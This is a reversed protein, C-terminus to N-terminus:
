QKAAIPLLKRIEKSSLTNIDVEEPPTYVPNSTATKPETGTPTVGEYDSAFTTFNEEFEEMTQGQVPYVDRDAQRKLFAVTKPYNTEREALIRRYEKKVEEVQIQEKLQDAERRAEEAEIRYRESETLGELEYEKLKNDRERLQEELKLRAEKERKERERSQQLAHEWSKSGAPPEIGKEDKAKAEAEQKPQPPSTEGEAQTETPEQEEVAENPTLSVEALANSLAM